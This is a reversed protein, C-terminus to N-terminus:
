RQKIVVKKRARSLAVYQLERLTEGEAYQTIDDMNVYVSDYTSGQSKHVTSAYGYALGSTMITRDGIKLDCWSIFSGTIKKFEGWIQKKQIIAWRSKNNKLAAGRQRLDEITHAINAKKMDSIEPDLLFVTEECKDVTDYVTLLYGPLVGLATGTSKNGKEVSTVVYDTGNYLVVDKRDNPTYNSTATLLDGVEMFSKRNFVHIRVLNNLLAVNNNTFTLIKSKFPNTRYNVNLLEERLDFMFEKPSPVVKVGKEGQLETEFKDVPLLRLGDLTETLPNDSDQREVKTLYVVSHDEENFVQSKAVQKVPSLQKVDGIFIVKNDPHTSLRDIILQYLHDNIMSSEDIVYVNKGPFLDALMDSYFQLDRADFNSIELNPRLGLLSHLTVANNYGTLMNLVGKAKHTPAALVVKATGFYKKNLYAILIKVISTKGTGASGSLTIVNKTDDNVFSALDTLAKQQGPNLRFNIDLDDLNIKYGDIVIINDPKEKSETNTLPKEILM